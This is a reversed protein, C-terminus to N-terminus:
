FLTHIQFIYAILGVIIAIIIALRLNARRDAVQRKSRQWQSKLNTRSISFQEATDIDNKKELNKYKEKRPDYYRPKYDYVYHSRQKFLNGLM